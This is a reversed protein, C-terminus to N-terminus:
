SGLHTKWVDDNQLFWGRSALADLLAVADWDQASWDWEVQLLVELDRHPLGGRLGSKLLRRLGAPELTLLTAMSLPGMPLSEPEPKLMM